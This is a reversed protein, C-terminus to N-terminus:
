CLLIGCLITNLNRVDDILLTVVDDVRVTLHVHIHLLYPYDLVTILHPSLAYGCM